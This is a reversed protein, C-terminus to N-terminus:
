ISNRRQVTKENNDNERGKLNQLERKMEEENKLVKNFMKNMKEEMMETETKQHGNVVWKGAYYINKTVWWTTSVSLELLTGLVM